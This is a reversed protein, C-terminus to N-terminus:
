TRWDELTLGPVRMFETTNSTALILSLAKAHGALLTDYPGIPLGISELLARIQAAEKAAAVEFPLEQITQLLLNM